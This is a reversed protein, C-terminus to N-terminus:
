NLNVNLITPLTLNSSVFGKPFITRLWERKGNRWKGKLIAATGPYSGPIISDFDMTSGIVGCPLQKTYM